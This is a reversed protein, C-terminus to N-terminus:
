KNGIFVDSEWRGSEVRGDAYTMTGQGHRQGEAWEGVYATGSRWTYTGQGHKMGEVYAGEYVSGDSWQATGEGHPAHNVFEGVYEFGSDTILVGEGQMAGNVWEGTYIQGSGLRYTGTGDECDGTLCGTALPAPEWECSPCLDGSTDMFAWQEGGRIEETESTQAAAPAAAFLFVTLLVPLLYLPRRLAATWTSDNQSYCSTM